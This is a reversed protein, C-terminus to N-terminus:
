PKSTGTAVWNTPRGVPGGRENASTAHAGIPYKAEIFGLTRTRAASDDDRTIFIAVGRLNRSSLKTKTKDLANAAISEM